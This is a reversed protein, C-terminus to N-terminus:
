IYLSYCIVLSICLATCHLPLAAWLRSELGTCVCVCVCTLPSGVCRAAPHLRLASASYRRQDVSCHSWSPPWVVGPALFRSNHRPSCGPGPTGWTVVWVETCLIICSVPGPLTACADGPQDGRRTCGWLVLGKNTAPTFKTKVLNLTIWSWGKNPLCFLSSEEWSTYQWRGQKPLVKLSTHSAQHRPGLIIIDSSSSCRRTFAQPTGEDCPRRVGGPLVASHHVQKTTCPSQRRLCPIPKTHLVETWPLGVSHQLPFREENVANTSNWM